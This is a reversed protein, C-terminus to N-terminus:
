LVQEWLIDWIAKIVDEPTLTTDDWVAIVGSNLSAITNPDLDCWDWEGLSM